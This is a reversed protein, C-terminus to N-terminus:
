DKVVQQVLGYKKLLLMVCPGVFWDGSVSWIWNVFIRQKLFIHIVNGTVGIAIVLHTREMERSTIIMTLAKLEM